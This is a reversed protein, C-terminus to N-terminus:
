ATGFSLNLQQDPPPKPKIFPNDIWSWLDKHIFLNMRLLAVLNSMSWDETSKFRLFKLLLITIMATWFQIMVANVSTGYFTKIQLNQQRDSRSGCFATEPVSVRSTKFFIEIQWREKYIAGITTASLNM